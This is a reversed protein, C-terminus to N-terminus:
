DAVLRPALAQRAQDIATPDYDKTDAFVVLLREDSCLHDLLSEAFGPMSAVRRVDGVSLGSLTLFRELREPDEGLFSLVEVVLTTTDPLRLKKHIIRQLPSRM